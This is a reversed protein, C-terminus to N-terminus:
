LHSRFPCHRVGASPGPNRCLQALSIMPARGARRPCAMQCWAERYPELRNERRHPNFRLESHEACIRAPVVHWVREPVIYVVLFDINGPTYTNRRHSFKVAYRSADRHAATAKVQVRWFRSGSDLIFDYRASDGWPKVVGFGLASAKALFAAEAAEGFEKSTALGIAFIEPVTAPYRHSRNHSKRKSPGMFSFPAGPRAQM